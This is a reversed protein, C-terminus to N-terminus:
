AITHYKGPRTTVCLWVPCRTPPQAISCYRMIARTRAPRGRTGSAPANAHCPSSAGWTDNLSARADLHRWTRTPRTKTPSPFQEHSCVPQQLRPPSEEHPVSVQRALRLSRTRPPSEEHPASVQQLLWGRAPSKDPFGGVPRLCPM